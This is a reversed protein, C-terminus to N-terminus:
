EDYLGVQKAIEKCIFIVKDEINFMKIAAEKKFVWNMGTPYVGEQIEPQNESLPTEQAEVIWTGLKHNEQCKDCPEYGGFEHKTLTDRCSNDILIDKSEGCWFCVTMGVMNKEM